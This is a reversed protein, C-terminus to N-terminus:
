YQNRLKNIEVQLSAVQKETSDISDSKVTEGRTYGVYSLWGASRIERQKAILTYLSDSLIKNLDSELNETNLPIGLLKLITQAILLHGARNPHIGDEGFSFVPNIKRQIKLYESVPSHIDVVKAHPEKLQLEWKAYDKMVADYGAYPAFYAFDPANAPLRSKVPLSDFPEPTLLILNANASIVETILQRIGKKFAQFREPSEPHYIGDNLGYDSAIVIQPKILALARHLRNLLNPRPFPHQKETLGSVTESALGISIFDFEQEPYLRNLYYEMFNVFDGQQTISAGVILVRKGAFVPTDQETSVYYRAAGSVSYFLMLLFLIITNKKYM